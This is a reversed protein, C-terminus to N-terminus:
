SIIIPPLVIVRALGIRLHGREITGTNDWRVAYLYYFDGTGTRRSEYRETVTGLRTPEGPWPPAQVRDGVDLENTHTKHDRRDIVENSPYTSRIDGRITTRHQRDTAMDTARSVVTVEVSCGCDMCAFMRLGNPAMEMPSKCTLCTVTVDVTNSM